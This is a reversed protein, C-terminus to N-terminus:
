RNGPAVANAFSNVNAGTRPNPKEQVPKASPDGSNFNPTYKNHSTKAGPRADGYSAM